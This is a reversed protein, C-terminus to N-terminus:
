DEGTTGEPSNVTDEVPRYGSAPNPIRGSDNAASPLILVAGSDITQEVFDRFNVQNIEVDAKGPVQEPLPSLKLNNIYLDVAKPKDLTLHFRYRAEWRQEEGAALRRNLVTDGDSLIVAGLEQNPMLHLLLKQPPLYPDHPISAGADMANDGTTDSEAKETTHVTGFRLIERGSQKIVFFYIIFALIIVIGAVALYLWTRRSETKSMAPASQNQSKKESGSKNRTAALTEAEITAKEEIEAFIAADIGLYQAYGRAFIPFYARSPLKDPEGAELAQLYAEIIKTSESAAKLTKNQERRAAALIQGIEKYKDPM